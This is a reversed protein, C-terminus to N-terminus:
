KRRTSHLTEMLAAALLPLMIEHHGTLAYGKGGKQTPRKVVNTIPRYHQLFDMNVTTLRRLPYGLNRAITVSKLFIEPLFVASGINLYVGGELRSVQATFKKFDHLSTEGIAAGNVSPHMHIIDTGIAVHITIPIGLREGAALISKSHYPYKEKVIMQGVAEGMGLGKKMGKEITTNLIRGTEEAMGFTGQNIEKDVDESTKGLYAMEFDHIIGSGNMAIGQILGQEMLHIIIPSLGVKIVHSGMGVLILKQKRHAKAMAEVVSFFDQVALFNPLSKLFAKFSSGTRYPTAIDKFHVKSHRNKLPYTKIKEWPLQPVTKKM